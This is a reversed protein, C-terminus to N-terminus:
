ELSYVITFNGTTTIDASTRCSVVEGVAGLPGDKGFHVWSGGQTDTDLVANFIAKSADSTINAGTHFYVEFGAATASATNAFITHVRVRKAARPTIITAKTTSPNPTAQYIQVTEEGVTDGPKPLLPIYIGNLKVEELWADEFTGTTYWGFEFSIRYIAWTKFLVDAQFQAWTYPTGATLDSGGTGEGYFFLAAAGSPFAHSNQGASKDLATASGSQSFEARKDLDSPDHVWIVISVGYVENATQYWSWDADTFQPVPLENTPIYCAGYSAGGTQM